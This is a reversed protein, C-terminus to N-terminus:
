GSLPYDAQDEYVSGAKTPFSAILSFRDVPLPEARFGSNAALFAALKDLEPARLRALTVHPAFKRTEPALGARILAQEIKDRLGVLGPDREVGVWLAHPRSGGFTGTGALRLAFPRAKLRGLAEDVDAALAEDIEGIFRLTLHLNGPDVWKAGPVGGCLLS